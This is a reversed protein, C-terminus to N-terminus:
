FMGKSVQGVFRSTWECKRRENWTNILYKYATSPEICEIQMGSMPGKGWCCNRDIHASLAGLVQEATLINGGLWTSADNIAEEFSPPPIPPPPPAYSNDTTALKIKTKSCYSTQDFAILSVIFTTMLHYIMQHRHLLMM